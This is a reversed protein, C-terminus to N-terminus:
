SPILSADSVRNSSKNQVQPPVIVRIADNRMHSSREENLRSPWDNAIISASGVQPSRTAPRAPQRRTGMGEVVTLMRRKAVAEMPEDLLEIGHHGFICRRSEGVFELLYPAQFRRRTRAIQGLLNGMVNCNMM